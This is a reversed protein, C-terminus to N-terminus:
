KGRWYKQGASAGSLNKIEGRHWRRHGALLGSDRAKNM